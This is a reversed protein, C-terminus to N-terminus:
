IYIKQLKYSLFPSLWLPMSDYLSCAWLSKVFSSWSAMWLFIHSSIRLRGVLSLLCTCLLTNYLYFFDLLFLFHSFPSWLSLCLDLSSIFPGHCFPLPSLFRENWITFVPCTIVFPNWCLFLYPILVQFELTIWVGFIVIFLSPIM